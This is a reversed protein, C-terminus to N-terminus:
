RVFECARNIWGRLNPLDPDNPGQDTVILAYFQFRRVLVRQYATEPAANVAARTVPGIVGDAQVRAAEQLWKTARSKGHNVSCDVILNLLDNYLIWAFPEVHEARYFDVADTRDLNRVLAPLALTPHRQRYDDWAKQTVGFKTPGGRDSPRDTYKDGGERRILEDIIESITM